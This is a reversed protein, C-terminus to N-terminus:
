DERLGGSEGITRLLTTVATRSTRLADQLVSESCSALSTITFGLPKYDPNAAALATNLQQAALSADATALTLFM